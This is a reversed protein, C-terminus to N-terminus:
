GTTRRKAPFWTKGKLRTKAPLRLRKPIILLERGSRKRQLTYRVPLPLINHESYLAKVLQTNDYSVVWALSKEEQIRMALRHHDEAAYANLYLRQGKQVYPPDLYVFRKNKSDATDLFDLADLNSV